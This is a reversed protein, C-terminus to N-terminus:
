ATARTMTSRRIWLEMGGVTLGWGLWLSIVFITEPRFGLPTLFLDLAAAALRVTSIAAAAAYGRLMWARHRTFDRRRAAFYGTVLAGLFLIGALSIVLREGNGAFPVALGLWLGPLGTAFAIIILLRGSWRHLTPRRSRIRRVFQFPALLLFLAGGVVHLRTTAPHDGYRGDVHALLSDREAAFPDTIGLSALVERRVPDSRTVLDNVYVARGISAAVGVVTLVIVAAWLRAAVSM